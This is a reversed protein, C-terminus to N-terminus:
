KRGLLPKKFVKQVSNRFWPAMEPAWEKIFHLPREFRRTAKSRDPPSFFHRLTIEPFVKGDFGPTSHSM